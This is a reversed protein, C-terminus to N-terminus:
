ISLLDSDQYGADKLIEYCNLKETDNEFGNDKFVVQSTEIDYNDKLSVIKRAVNRNIKENLCVFLNGFAVDYIKFGETLVENIPYTLDLGNKLIIEYLIDEESRGNVFNSEFLDIKTEIDDFDAQWENLNSTDLNFVKFGIDLEDSNIQGESLLGEKNNKDILDNKVKEGGRRIREEGIDCITHYGNKYAESKEDLIEPLQVMIFKRSGGDEANLKMMAQATTASGSFFDLIIGDKNPCGVRILEKLLLTPKAYEFIGKKNFANDIEIASNSSFGFDLLITPLTLGDRVESLYRKLFPSGSNKRFSVQGSKIYRNMKEKNFLWCRGDSPYFEEGTEINKIPYTLSSVFRGGKGNASLDSAVWPGRPDKDPNTYRSISDKNRPLLGLSLVNIDRAYVIIYEHIRGINRDNPPTARKKWILKEVFNETGFIEDCVKELNTQENDDISIFIVGDNTLLNRALKLRSYIMNLWDTHYRGNSETNSNFKVGENDKQGTLELYSDVSDKFDDKYVFDNGTNYPPDIYIMKVKNNYSKQLLKLVELNDGEIYLNETTNWNKSKEKVPRLTGKSPQQAFQMTEKKGHWTFNYRDPSDDIEKGLLLQLKEFDIKGDTMIEPFLQKLKEINNVTLDPTTGKMKDFM